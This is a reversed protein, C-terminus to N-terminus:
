ESADKSQVAEKYLRLEDFEINEAAALAYAVPNSDVISICGVYRPPNKKERRTKKTVINQLQKEQVDRPQATLNISMRKSTEIEFETKQDTGQYKNGALNDLEERQGFMTSKDFVVNKSIIFKPTRDKKICWLRYGKVITTYGLFICRMARPELTGVNVHAYSSM